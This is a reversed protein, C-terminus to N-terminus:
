SLLFSALVSFYREEDELWPFHAADAITVWKVKPIEQFFPMQVTDAAEDYQGNIILTPIKIKDLRGM